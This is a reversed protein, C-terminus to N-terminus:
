KYTRYIALNVIMAIFPSSPYIYIISIETWSSYPLSLSLWPFAFLFVINIAFLYNKSKMRLLFAHMIPLIWLMLIFYGIKVIKEDIFANSYTPISFCTFALLKIATTHPKSNQYAM